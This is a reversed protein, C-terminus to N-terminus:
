RQSRSPQQEEAACGLKDYYKAGRNSLGRTIKSSRYLQIAQYTTYYQKGERGGQLTGAEILQTVRFPTLSLLSGAQATNLRMNMLETPIVSLRLQALDYQFNDIKANVAKFEAELDM